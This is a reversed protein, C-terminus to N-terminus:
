LIEKESDLSEFNACSWCVILWVDLTCKLIQDIKLTYSNKHNLFLAYELSLFPIHTQFSFLTSGTEDTLKILYSGQM